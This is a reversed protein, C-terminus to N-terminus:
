YILSVFIGKLHTMQNSIQCSIIAIEGAQQLKQYIYRLCYKQQPLLTCSTLDEKEQMGKDRYKICLFIHFLQPTELCLQVTEMLPMRVIEKCDFRCVLWSKLKRFKNKSPKIIVSSVPIILYQSLTRRLCLEISTSLTLLNFFSILVLSFKLLPKLFEKAAKAAPSYYLLSCCHCRSLM